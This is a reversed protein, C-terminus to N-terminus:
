LMICILGNCGENVIRQLTQQMKVRVDPEMSNVKGTMGDKVLDYLPKGFINTQWIATPDKEFTDLLYSVLAESQQETGVIPNVESDIDVRIVHLGSAHARLKVGFRNGQQVMEPEDLEMEDIAPPVLGYGTQKAEQLASAVRDYETKAQVFDKMASMLQFDDKIDCGCEEGLVEYFLNEQPQLQFTATGAGLDVHEVRIPYFREIASMDELLCAYDRMKNLKESSGIVPMMLRQILYHDSSLARLFAPIKIEVFRLPFELLVEELLQAAQLASMHLVDLALVCAGYQASLSQRLAQTAACDPDISNLIIVFPKGTAQIERVVQAEADVYNERPLEAITGDTTMVIGITSHESIVKQTGIKAADEFPIDYDYWPTRVMRPTENELHGLVGPILFGVCDVMRVNCFMHDAFELRVAENPVFKPQTTMISRGAGSQPMEDIVRSRIHENEINPLILLDLFRKIFTSKGTRVPGVVGIYIDGQTRTAIDQYLQTRDM